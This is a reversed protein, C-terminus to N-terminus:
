SVESAVQKMSIEQKIKAGSTQNIKVLSCPTIDLFYFEETYTNTNLIRVPKFDSVIPDL